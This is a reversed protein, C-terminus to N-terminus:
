EVLKSELFTILKKLAEIENSKQEIIQEKQQILEEKHEIIIKLKDIEQGSTQEAYYTAQYNANDGNDSMLFIVGKEAQQMLELIDMDFIHAIKQLRNLHLKTEGREVKAYGSVSMNLKEAMDEQSWQKAERMLRIQNHIAM